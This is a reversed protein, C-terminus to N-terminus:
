LSLRILYLGAPVVQCRFAVMVKSCASEAAGKLSYLTHAGGM